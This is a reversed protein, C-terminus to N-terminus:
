SFWIRQYDRSMPHALLAVLIGAFAVDIIQPFGLVHAGYVAIWFLLHLVSVVLALGYSWKKENAVGFGGIGLGVAIVVLPLFGGSGILRFVAEFYCLLTANVLTQPQSTNLFRYNNM